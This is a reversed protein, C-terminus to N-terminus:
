WGQVSNQIIQDVINRIALDRGTQESQNSFDYIGEGLIDGQYIAEDKKNDWFAVEVRINVVYQTVNVDRYGKTGYTYPQNTYSVVKGKITADGNRAVNKLLNQQVVRKSIEATIDEAVNPQLSQNVFLPIDITRLHGPLTSGSFTYVGCGSLMAAAAIIVPLLFRFRM